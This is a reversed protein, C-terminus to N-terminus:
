KPLLLFAVTGATAGLIITIIIAVVMGVKSDREPKAIITVPGKAEEEPIEIQKQYVNKSLPRKKVKELNVFKPVSVTAEKSAPKEAPKETPKEVPEAGTAVQKAVLATMAGEHVSMKRHTLRSKGVLKEAKAERIEDELSSKKANGGSLPRKEVETKVFKPGRDEIVGLKVASGAGGNAVSREEFIEDMQFDDAVETTPVERRAQKVPEAPEVVETFEVEETVVRGSTRARLSMPRRVRAVGSVNRTVVGSRRVDDVRWKADGSVSGGRSVVESDGGPMIVRVKEETEDMVEPSVEDPTATKRVPVFDMYRKNM